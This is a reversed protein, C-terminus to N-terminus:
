LLKRGTSFTHISVWKIKSICCLSGMVLIFKYFIKVKLESFQTDSAGGAQGKTLNTEGWCGDMEEHGWVHSWDRCVCVASGGPQAAARLGASFGGAMARCKVAAAWSVRGARGHWPHRKGQQWSCPQPSSLTIGGPCPQPTHLTDWRGGNIAPESTFTHYVWNWPVAFQQHWAWPDFIMWIRDPNQHGVVLCRM